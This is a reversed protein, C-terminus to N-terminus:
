VCTMGWIGGDSPARGREFGMISEYVKSVNCASEVDNEKPFCTDPFAGYYIEKRSVVDGFDGRIDFATGELGRSVLKGELNGRLICLYSYPVGNAEFLGGHPNVPIQSRNFLRMGEDALQGVFPADIEQQEAYSTTSDRGCSLAVIPEEMFDKTGLLDGNSQDDGVQFPLGRHLVPPYPILLVDLLIANVADPM